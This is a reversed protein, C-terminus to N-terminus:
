RQHRHTLDVVRANVTGNAILTGGPCVVIANPRQQGHAKCQGVMITGGSAVTVTGSPAIEFTSGVSVQGGQSVDLVGIGDGGVKLNTVNDLHSGRGTVDVEGNSGAVEGIVCNDDSVVGSNTVALTGQGQEGVRLASAVQLISGVGSVTVAGVGNSTNGIEASDCKASGGGDILLTGHGDDGAFLPGTMIWQSGVDQVIVEGRSLSRNGIVGWISSVGGGSLISLVGHGTTDTHYVGGVTLRDIGTWTSGKGTVTASGTAGDSTGIFAFTPDGTALNQAVCQGGDAIILTGSNVNCGARIKSGQGSVVVSGSSLENAPGGYPGNSVDNAVVSAGNLVELHGVGGGNGIWVSGPLASMDLVASPGVLTLKGTNDLPEGLTACCGDVTMTGNRVTLSANGPTSNDSRTTGILCGSSLRYSGSKSDSPACGDSGPGLDFVWDENEIRLVQSVADGAATQSEHSICVGGWYRCFSGFHIEHPASEGPGVYLGSGFIAQDVCGDSCGAGCPPDASGNCTACCCPPNNTWYECEFFSAIPVQTPDCYNSDLSQWYTDDAAARHAGGPVVAAISIASALITAHIRSSTTMEMRNSM